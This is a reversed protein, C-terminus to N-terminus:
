TMHKKTRAQSAAGFVVSLVTPKLHTFQCWSCTKKHKQPRTSAQTSLCKLILSNKAAANGSAYWVYNVNAAAVEADLMYDIFAYAEDINSADAPMAFMDFWMNTGEKPIVYEITIGNELEDSARYAAQFADGSWMIAACIEGTAMDEISQSSNIYALHPRVAELARGAAVLDKTAQSTGDLGLYAMVNPLVDTPADLIAVGCDALAEANAPDLILGWSDTPADDGLREAIADVNYAIGTTGWMYVLGRNAGGALSDAFAQITADQNGLNDLRSLDLEQYSGQEFGRALFDSTPVVVDYGSGGASVKSELIENSDYVDYTLSIGTTETFGDITVEEDIYDSWNYVNVSQSFATAALLASASVLLLKKM